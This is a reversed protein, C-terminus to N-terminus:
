HGMFKLFDWEEQTKGTVTLMEMMWETPWNWFRPTM